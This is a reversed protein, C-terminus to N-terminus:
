DQFISGPLPKPTKVEVPVEIVKEIVVTKEIVEPEPIQEPGTEEIVEVEESPNTLEPLLIESKVESGFVDVKLEDLISVLQIQMYVAGLSLLVIMLVKIAKDAATKKRKKPM